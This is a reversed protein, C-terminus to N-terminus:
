CHNALMWEEQTSPDRISVDEVDVMGVLELLACSIKNELVLEIRMLEQPVLPYSKSVCHATIRAAFGNGEEEPGARPLISVQDIAAAIFLEKLNHEVLERLYKETNAMEGTLVEGFKDYCHMNITVYFM